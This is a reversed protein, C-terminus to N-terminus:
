RGVDIVVRTPSGLTFVRAWTRERMGVGVTLYAEFDGTIAVATVNQLNWTRFKRPGPYSPDGADTHAQAPNVVVELFECGTLWEVEGSGDRTLEDVFRSSVGPRHGSLDLVIRDFTPHVGTRIGTLTPTQTASQAPGAAGAFVATGILITALLGTARRTITGM